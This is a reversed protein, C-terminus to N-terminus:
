RRGGAVVRCRWKRFLHQTVGSVLQMIPLGGGCRGASDDYRASEVPGVGTM